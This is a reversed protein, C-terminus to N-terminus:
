QMTGYRGYSSEPPYPVSWQPFNWSSPVPCACDQQPLNNYFLCPTETLSMRPPYEPQYSHFSQQGPSFGCSLGNIYNLNAYRQTAEAQKRKLKMRRNQFWTKVQTETLSLLRALNQRVATSLYQERAFYREMECVQHVTFLSRNKKSSQKNGSYFYHFYFYFINPLKLRPCSTNISLEFKM